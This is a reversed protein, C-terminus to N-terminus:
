DANSKLYCVQSYDAPPGNGYKIKQIKWHLLGGETM